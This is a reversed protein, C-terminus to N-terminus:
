ISGLEVSIVIDTFRLTLLQPTHHLVDSCAACPGRECISTLLIVIYSNQVSAIYFSRTRTDVGIMSM